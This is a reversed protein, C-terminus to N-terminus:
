QLQIPMPTVFDDRMRFAASSGQEVLLDLLDLVADRLDNQRKLELPRGYVYRQLLVELLFVTNGKKLMQGANGQRLRKAIRLFARPLSQEGVHYLFRLYYDLVTSSAPLDEFLSHVHQSHGELCRWHRVGEKWSSGLFIASMMENGSAHEEDIRKLWTARRVKEAFLEWLSWFNPTNPERDEVCIMGLLIWQVERSHRDIAEAIPQLITRAATLPTRLLFTQLLNTQASVTEYNREPRRQDGNHRHAEEEDWWTVLMQGLRQFAAISAPENPAEGLIALIRGNAESGFWRGPDLKLHADISIGNTEFFQRRVVTAAEAEIADISRRETHAELFEREPRPRNYELDAAQQALIAETAIANACKVALDRDIRWLNKAVGWAAFWRVETIAHTLAVVMAQRVRLQPGDELSRGILLPLVWACPRDAAMEYRQVRATQNWLNSEREVESCAVDVSWDREDDTMEDWHDRICVAAVYGPGGEGLEREDGRSLASARTQALRDRWQAPDYTANEEGRYVKMGWMLLGLSANMEQLQAASKDVMEKVDPEPLNLDLRVYQHGDAPPTGGDAAASADPAEEAVTYQRLDMRHLALRWVRDEEDQEEVPRMEARYRDLIEHVRPALPGFQLNAIAAELDRRRHPLADAEKRENEYVENRSNLRPMMGLMKSSAQSEHRLRLCDLRMCPPSRLLVLLTEGCLHPFATAVSAVVATLAASDSRRLIDSLMADLESPCGAAFALLWRELAMLLTQLVYPGVSIGRYLTWLRGNCWQTKSTGDNFTLTIEFPPEVYELRARPHAYWDASRNFVAIIFDLGQRPHHRLLPLFPGRYASAPFFDHGRGRKIGFLTELDLDSGGGSRRQLDAESCLLYDNAASVVAEPMDRAASMGEVGEFIIERFEDSLRDREEADRNGQLLNAFRDRDANPTKAIVQL